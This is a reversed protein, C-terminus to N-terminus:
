DVQAIVIKQFVLGPDIMWIKLTHPGAKEVSTRYNKIKIHDTVSQNWWQPYEWDPKTEGEHMNIIHPTQNDVSVAFKLGEKRKFNLTPSLYVRIDIDGSNFLTFEYELYPSNEGPSQRDSNAPSIIIIKFLDTM